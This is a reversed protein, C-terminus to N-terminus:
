AHSVRVFVVFNALSIFFSVPALFIAGLWNDAMLCFVGFVIAAVCSLLACGQGVLLIFDAFLSYAVGHRQNSERLGVTSTDDPPEPISPADPDRHFDPDVTGDPDSGCNWCTDFSDEVLAECHSCKWM